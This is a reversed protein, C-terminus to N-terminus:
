LAHFINLTLYLSMQIVVTVDSKNNVEFMIWM